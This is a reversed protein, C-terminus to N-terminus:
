RGRKMAELVRQVFDGVGGPLDVFMGLVVASVAILTAGGLVSGMGFFIGRFFNMWYVQTKSRNFDVFLDEIISHRAGRENDAKIHDTAKEVSSKSRKSM